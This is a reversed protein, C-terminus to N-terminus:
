GRGCLVGGLMRLFCYIVVIFIAASIMWSYDPETTVQKSQYNSSPNTYTYEKTLMEYPGILELVVSKFGTTDSSSITQISTEFSTLVLNNDSYVVNSINNEIESVDSVYETPEIFDTNEVVASESAFAVLVLCVICLFVCVAIFLCRWIFKNNCRFSVGRFFGM